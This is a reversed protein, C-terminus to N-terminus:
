KGGKDWPWPNKVWDWSTDNDEDISCLPGYTKEYQEKTQKYLKQYKHFVKLMDNDNNHIDLYLIIDKIAFGYMQIKYLLKDKENNVKLKYVHNKYKSYLNDFMNGKNFGEEENLLKQNRNININEINLDIDNFKNKEFDFDNNFVKFYNDEENFYM